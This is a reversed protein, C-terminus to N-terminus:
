QELSLEPGCARSLAMAQHNPCMHLCTFERKRSIRDVGGVKQEWLFKSRPEARILATVLGQRKGM